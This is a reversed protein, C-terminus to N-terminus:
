RKESPNMLERIQEGARHFQKTITNEKRNLKEATEKVTYKQFFIYEAVERYPSTLKEVVKKLSELEEWLLQRKEDSKDREEYLPVRKEPSPRKQADEWRKGGSICGKAIACLWSYFSSEGEKGEEEFKDINVWAQIYAEQCIDVSEISPDKLYDKIKLSIFFQLKKQYRFVLKNFAKQDGEKARAVIRRIPTDSENAM